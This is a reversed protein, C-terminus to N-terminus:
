GGSEPPDTSPFTGPHFRHDQAVPGQAARKLGDEGAPWPLFRVPVKFRPLREPYLVGRDRDYVRSNDPDLRPELLKPSTITVGEMPGAITPSLPNASKATECAAAGIFLAFCVSPGVTRRLVAKM